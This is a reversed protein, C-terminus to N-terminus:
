PNLNIKRHQKITKKAEDVVETAKLTVSKGKKVTVKTKNLKVSKAVTTKGGKTTVHITVSAAIPMKQGNVNKYAVVMYKYNKGKKLKKQTFKVTSNKKITKVLKMKNGKGCLNSYILYGDADKQKTWQLTMTKEARKTARATLKGFDTGKADKSDVDMKTLADGSLKVTDMSVGLEQATKVMQAATDKDVGNAKAIADADKQESKSLDDYTTEETPQPEDPKAPELKPVVTGEAIKAGCDKCYTDGTYGEETETAEKADRIETNVHNAPDKEGM